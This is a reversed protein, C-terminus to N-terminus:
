SVEGDHLDGLFARLKKRDLDRMRVHGLGPKIHNEIADEYDHHSKLTLDTKGALWGDLYEGLTQRSHVHGRKRPQQKRQLEQIRDKLGYYADESKDGRPGVLRTRVRKGGKDFGLSLEVVYRREKDSWRPASNGNPARGTKKRM